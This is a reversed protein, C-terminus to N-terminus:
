NTSSHLASELDKIRKELEEIKKVYKEINRLYVKQKNHEHLPQLPSGGYQGGKQLTKTVGGRTAIQTHDPVEVHGVVGAQGGFIVYKGTKSSGSIGTQSVIINHEGLIVNHGIQVLNDIKTGKCIRTHKFRARDITTNAGIEVDDEIIVNGLQEIKQHQGKADTIYGFGCSGIICGPQLIVRNHMKTRERIVAGPHIVCNEGIEVDPGIFVHSFITTRRGIKVNKDITVNPGIRVQEGLVCTPHIVASEHILNFGSECSEIMLDTIKRFVESPNNSILYNKNEIPVESSHLCVAGAKTSKLLDKYRNNSLFSVENEEAADLSNIGSIEHHPNGILSSNTLKALEELTFIKSM